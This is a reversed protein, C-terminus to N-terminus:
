NARLRWVDYNNQSVALSEAEIGFIFRGVIMVWFTGLLVGSAFLLQCILLIFLYIIIPVWVPALSVELLCLIVNLCSFYFIHM